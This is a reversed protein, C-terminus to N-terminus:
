TQNPKWKYYYNLNRHNWEQKKLSPLYGTQAKLEECMISSVLDANEKTTAISDHITFLPVEPNNKSIRKTICQLVAHSEWRQLVIPLINPYLKKLQCFYEYIGPFHKQFLRKPEAGPQGLFRNSSYIIRFFEEKLARRSPYTVGLEERLLREFYDYIKGSLVL